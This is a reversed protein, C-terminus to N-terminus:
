GELLNKYTSNLWESMTHVVELNIHSINMDDAHLVLTM